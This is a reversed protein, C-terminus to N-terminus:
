VVQIVQWVKKITADRGARRRRTFPLCAIMLDSEAPRFSVKDLNGGCIRRALMVKVLNSLWSFEIFY